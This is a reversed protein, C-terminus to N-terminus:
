RAQKPLLLGCTRIRGGRSFKKCSCHLCLEAPYLVQRRLLRDFTRIRRGECCFGSFETPKKCKTIKTNRIKRCKCCCFAVKQSMKVFLDRVDFNFNFQDSESFLKKFTKRQYHFNRVLVFTFGFRKSKTCNIMKDLVSFRYKILM